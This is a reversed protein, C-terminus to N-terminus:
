GSRRVKMAEHIVVFCIKSRWPAFDNCVLFRSLAASPCGVALVSIRQAWCHMVVPTLIDVDGDHSVFADHVCELKEMVILLHRLTM